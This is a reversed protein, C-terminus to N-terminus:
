GTFSRVGAPEEDGHNGCSERPVSGGGARRLRLFALTWTWAAAAAAAAAAAGVAGAAAAPGAHGAGCGCVAMGPGAVREAESHVSASLCCHLYSGELLRFM